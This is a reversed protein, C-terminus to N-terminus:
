AFVESPSFLGLNPTASGSGGSVLYQSAGESAV